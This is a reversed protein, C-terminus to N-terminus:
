NLNFFNELFYLIINFLRIKEYNTPILVNLKESWDSEERHEDRAKVRISYIGFKSWNNILFVEENSNYPGIWDSFTGDGFDWKYGNIFYKMEKM